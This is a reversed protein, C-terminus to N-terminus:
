NLIVKAHKGQSLSLNFIHSLAILANQLLYKLLVALINDYGASIKAKYSKIILSLEFPNTPLFYMSSPHSNKLYSKPRYTISCTPLNAILKKRLM